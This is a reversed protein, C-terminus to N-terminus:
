RCWRISRVVLVIELDLKGEPLGPVFGLLAGVVVLVVPYLVL